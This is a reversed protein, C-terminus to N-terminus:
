LLLVLFDIYLGLKTQQSMKRNDVRTTRSINTGLFGRKIRARRKRRRCYFSLLNQLTLLRANMERASFCGFDPVSVVAFVHRGRHQSQASINCPRLCLVIGEM